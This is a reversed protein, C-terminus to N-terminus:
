QWKASDAKNSESIQHLLPSHRDHGHRAIGKAHQNFKDDSTQSLGQKARDEKSTTTMITPQQEKNNKDKIVTYIFTSKTQLVFPYSPGRETHTMPKVATKYKKYRTAVLFTDRHTSPCNIASDLSQM